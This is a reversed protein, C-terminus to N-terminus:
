APTKPRAQQGPAPRTSPLLDGGGTLSLVREVSPSVACIRLVVRINVAIRHAVILTGAGTADLLEVATLDLRIGTVDGRNLLGTVAAWFTPAHVMDLDGRVSVDVIGSGEAQIELM